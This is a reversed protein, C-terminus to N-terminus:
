GGSLKFFENTLVLVLFFSFVFVLFFAIPPPPGSNGITFLVDANIARATIRLNFLLIHILLEYSGRPDTVSRRGRKGDIIDGLIVFLTDRAIWEVNWVDEYVDGTEDVITVLKTDVLLQVMKRLDAHVDSTVVVTGFDRTIEYGRVNGDEEVFEAVRRRIADMSGTTLRHQGDAHTTVFMDRTIM